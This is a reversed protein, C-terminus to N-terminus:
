FTKDLFDILELSIYIVGCIPPSLYIIISFWSSM